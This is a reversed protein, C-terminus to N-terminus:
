SVVISLRTIVAVPGSGGGGDGESGCDCCTTCLTWPGDGVDGKCAQRGEGDM